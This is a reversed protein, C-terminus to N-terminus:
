EIIKSSLKFKITKDRRSVGEIRLFLLGNQDFTLSCELNVGKNIASNKTIHCHTQNDILEYMGKDVYHIVLLEDKFRKEINIMQSSVRLLSSIIILLITISIILELLSAGQQKFHKINTRM